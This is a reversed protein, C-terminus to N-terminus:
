SKSASASSAKVGAGAPDIPTAPAASCAALAQVLAAVSALLLSPRPPDVGFKM